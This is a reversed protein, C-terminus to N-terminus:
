IRKKALKAPLFAYIFLIDEPGFVGAVGLPPSLNVGIPHWGSYNKFLPAQPKAGVIKCCGYNPNNANRSMMERWTYGTGM